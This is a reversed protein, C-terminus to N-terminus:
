VDVGGGGGGGGVGGGGEVGKCICGLRLCTSVSVTVPCSSIYAYMNNHIHM